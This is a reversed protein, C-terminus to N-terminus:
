HLLVEPGNDLLRQTHSTSCVAADDLLVREPQCNATSIQERHLQTVRHVVPILDLNRGDVVSNSGNSGTVSWLPPRERIQQVPWNCLTLRGVFIPQVAPINGRKVFAM